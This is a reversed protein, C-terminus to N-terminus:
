LLVQSVRQGIIRQSQANYHWTDFLVLDTADVYSGNLINESFTKLDANITPVFAMNTSGKISVVVWKTADSIFGRSIMNLRMDTINQLYNVNGDDADNEGQLWVVADLGSSFAIKGASISSMAAEYVANGANWDNDSFGTGGKAAPILNINDGIIEKCMRLWLGMSGAQYDQSDLPNTAAVISQSGFGFQSVRGSIGTYNDDIDAVLAARGVMNSQGLLAFTLPSSMTKPLANVWASESYNSAVLSRGGLVSSLQTGGQTRNNPTVDTNLVGTNRDGGTWLRFRKVYGESTPTFRSKGLMTISYQAGQSGDLTYNTEGISLTTLNGVRKVIFEVDSNFSNFTGNPLSILDGSSSRLLVAGLPTIKLSSFFGGGNGFIYTDSINTTNVIISIEFNQFATITIASSLSYFSSVGNLQYVYSTVGLVAAVSTISTGASDTVNVTISANKDAAAATFSLAASNTGVNVGNKKWQYSYPAVGGTVECSFTALAYEDVTKSQPQSVFTLPTVVPVQVGFVSTIAPRIAPRFAPKFANM